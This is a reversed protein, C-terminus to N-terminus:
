NTAGRPGRQPATGTLHLLGADTARFGCADLYFPRLHAEFDVHLWTCGARTAELAGARLLAAGIGRRQHDPHVLTDLVVAHAGGDWCLNVFGVLHDAAFAGVWTLSHRELRQRWPTITTTPSTFAAAHLASLAADDVSFRVRVDISPTM